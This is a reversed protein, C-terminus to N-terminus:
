SARRPCWRRSCRPPSPAGGAPRPSSPRSRRSPGGRRCRARAGTSGSSDIGHVSQKAQQRQAGDSAEGAAGRRRFAVAGSAGALAVGLHGARGDVQRRLELHGIALAPAAVLRRHVRAVLELGFGVLVPRWRGRLDEARVRLAARELALGQAAGARLRGADLGRLPGGEARRIDPPAHAREREVWAVRVPEERAGSRAPEPDRLVGADGPTRVVVEQGVERDRGDRDVGDIRVHHVQARSFRARAQHAHASELGGVAAVGPLVELGGVGIGIAVPAERVAEGDM